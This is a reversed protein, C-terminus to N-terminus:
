EIPTDEESNEITPDGEQAAIVSSQMITRSVGSSYRAHHILYQIGTVEAPVRVLQQSEVNSSPVVYSQPVVSMAAEGVSSLMSDPGLNVYRLGFVAVLAVTAAIGAGTAIQPWAFVSDRLASQDEDIAHRIRRGFDSAAPHVNEGRVAAGILQYRLYQRRAEMDTQLRRVFFESEEPSMEDDIFQSIQENFQDTM